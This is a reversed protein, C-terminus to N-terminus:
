QYTLEGIYVYLLLELNDREIIKGEGRDEWKRTSRFKGERKRIYIIERLDCELYDCKRKLRMIKQFPITNKERLYDCM